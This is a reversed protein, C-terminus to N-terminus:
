LIHYSIVVVTFDQMYIYLKHITCQLGKMSSSKTSQILNICTYMSPRVHSYKKIRLFSLQFWDSIDTLRLYSNIITQQAGLSREKTEMTVPGSVFFSCQSGVLQCIANSYKRCKYLNWYVYMYCIVYVKLMCHFEMGSNTISLKAVRVLM